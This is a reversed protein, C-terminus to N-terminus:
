FLSFLKEWDTNKNKTSEFGSYKKSENIAINLDIAKQKQMYCIGKKFLREAIYEQETQGPTPILIAKKSLKNLDMITSYGSRSIIIESEEIVNNIEQTELHSKIILNGIIESKEEEPKGLIIMSKEQRKALSKILKKELITRQPEPGSIIALLKYKIKKKIKKFRSQVGIYTTNKPIKNPKSLTGALNSELDDIVWCQNYQNIFYYNIKQIYKSFYTSKIKLQHTIFICPIKNSFFGFRNDSIVGDIKYDDILKNLIKHEQRIKFLLKPLQLIISISMPLYKSYTINYGPITIIKLKPFEKKLLVSARGNSGIIVNFQHELLAYIIPICRTAHGIGWDLPAILITKKRGM